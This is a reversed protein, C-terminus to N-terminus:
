LSECLAENIQLFNEKTSQFDSWMPDDIFLRCNTLNNIDLNVRGLKAIACLSTGFDVINKTNLIDLASYDSIVSESTSNLIEKQLAAERPHIIFNSGSFKRILNHFSGLSVHQIKPLIVITDFPMNQNKIFEKILNTHVSNFTPNKLIKEGFYHEYRKYRKLHFKSDFFYNVKRYEVYNLLLIDKIKWALGGMLPKDKVELGHPIMTLKEYSFKRDFMMHNKSKKSLKTGGWQSILNKCYLKDINSYNLHRISLENLMMIFKSSVSNHNVIVVYSSNNERLEIMLGLSHVFIVDDEILLAADYKM